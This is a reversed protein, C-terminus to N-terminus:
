NSGTKSLEAYIQHQKATIRRSKTCNQQTRCQNPGTKSLEAELQHRKAGNQKARPDPPGLYPVRPDPVGPPVSFRQPQYDLTEATATQGNSAGERDLWRPQPYARRREERVRLAEREREVEAERAV